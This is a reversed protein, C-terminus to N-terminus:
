QNRFHLRSHLRYLIEDFEQSFSTEKVIETYTVKEERKRKRRKEKKKEKGKEERKRKEEEERGKRDKMERKNKRKGEERRGRTKRFYFPFFFPIRNPM